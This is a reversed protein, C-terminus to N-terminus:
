SLLHHIVEALHVSLVTVDDPGNRCSAKSVVKAIGWEAVCSLRRDLLEEVVTVPLTIQGIQRRILTTVKLVEVPVREPEM